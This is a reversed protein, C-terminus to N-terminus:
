SASPRAKWPRVVWVCHWCLLYNVCFGRPHSGTGCKGCVDESV